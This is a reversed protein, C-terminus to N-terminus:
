CHLPLALDGGTALQMSMILLYATWSTALLILLRDALNMRGRKMKSTRDVAPDLTTQRKHQM